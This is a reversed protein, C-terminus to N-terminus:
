CCKANEYKRRHKSDIFERWETVSHVRKTLHLHRAYANEDSLERALEVIYRLIRELVIM